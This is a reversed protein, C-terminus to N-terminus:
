PKEKKYVHQNEKIGKKFIKRFFEENLFDDYNNIKGM